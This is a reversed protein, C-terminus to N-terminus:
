MVSSIRVSHRCGSDVRGKMGPFFVQAAVMHEAIGL